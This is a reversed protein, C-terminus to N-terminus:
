VGPIAVYAKMVYTMIVDHFTSSAKKVTIELMDRCAAVSSDLRRTWVHATTRECM